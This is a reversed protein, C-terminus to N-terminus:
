SCGANREAATAAGRDAVHRLSPAFLLSLIYWTLRGYLYDAMHRIVLIGTIFNPIDGIFGCFIGMMTYGLLEWLYSKGHIAM